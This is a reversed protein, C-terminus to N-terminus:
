DCVRAPAASPEELHDLGDGLSPITPLSLPLRGAGFLTFGGNGEGKLRENRLIATQSIAGSGSPGSGSPGSHDVRPRLSSLTVARARRDVALRPGVFWAVVVGGTGATTHLAIGGAFDLVGIQQLWGGGWVWHAVPYYVLIEYLVVLWM